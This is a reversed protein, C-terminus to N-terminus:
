YFGIEGSNVSRGLRPTYLDYSKKGLRPVYFGSDDYAEVKQANSDAFQQGKDALVRKNTPIYRIAAMNPMPLDTGTFFAKFISPKHLMLFRLIAYNQLKEKDMNNHNPLSLLEEETAIENLIANIEDSTSRRLRILLYVCM